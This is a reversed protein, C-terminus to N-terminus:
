FLKKLEGHVKNLDGRVGGHFKNLKNQYSQMEDNIEELSKVLGRLGTMLKASTDLIDDPQDWEFMWQIKKATELALKIEDNQIFYALNKWLSRLDREFSEWNDYRGATKGLATLEKAVKVLERAISEMEM